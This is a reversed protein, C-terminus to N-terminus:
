SNYLQFYCVLQRKQTWTMLGSTIVALGQHLTASPPIYSHTPDVTAAGATYIYATYIGSTASPLPLVASCFYVGSM